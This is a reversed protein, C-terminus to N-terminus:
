SDIIEIKTNFNATKLESNFNSILNRQEAFASAFELVSDKPQVICSCGVHKCAKAKFRNYNIIDQNLGLCSLLM